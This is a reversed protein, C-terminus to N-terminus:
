PLSVGRQLSREALLETAQCEGGTVARAHVNRTTSARCHALRASVVTIVERM